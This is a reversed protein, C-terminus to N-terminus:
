TTCKAATGEVEEGIGIGVYEWRPRANPMSITITYAGARAFRLSLMHPLFSQWLCRPDGPTYKDM